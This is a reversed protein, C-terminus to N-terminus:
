KSTVTYKATETGLTGMELFKSKGPGQYSTKLLNASCKGDPFLKKAEGGLSLLQCGHLSAFAVQWLM